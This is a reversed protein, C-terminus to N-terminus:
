ETVDKDAPDNDWSDVFERLREARAQDDEDEVLALLGVASLYAERTLAPDVQLTEPAYAAALLNAIRQEQAALLTASATAAQIMLAARERVLAGRDDPPVSKDFLGFAETILEAARKFDEDSHNSM